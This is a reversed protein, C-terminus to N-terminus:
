KELFLMYQMVVTAREQRCVQDTQRTKSGREYSTPKRERGSYPAYSGKSVDNDNAWRSATTAERLATEAKAGAELGAAPEARESVLASKSAM